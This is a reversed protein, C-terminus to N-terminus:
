ARNAVPSSQEDSSGELLGVQACTFLYLRELEAAAKGTPEVEQASKGMAPADAYGGRQSLHVPAVELRFQDRILAKIEDAQRTAHPNMGNVVVFAKPSGAVRLMGEVATLTELDMVNPRTPILVLDAVKAAEIAESTSKGPTDIIVLDAGGSRAAELSARLRPAKADVVAPGVDGRRDKWSAATSQPDLDIIAVELGIKGAAVALGIAITTKGSGGKQGIIAITKM